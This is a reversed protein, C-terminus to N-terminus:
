WAELTWFLKNCVELVFLVHLTSHHALIDSHYERTANAERPGMATRKREECCHLSAVAQVSKGQEVSAIWM